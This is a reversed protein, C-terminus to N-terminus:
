GREYVMDNVAQLQLCDYGDLNLAYEGAQEDKRDMWPEQGM